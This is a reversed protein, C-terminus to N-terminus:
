RNERNRVDGGPLLIITATAKPNSMAYMPLRADGRGVDMQVMGEDAAARFAMCAMLLVSILKLAKNM